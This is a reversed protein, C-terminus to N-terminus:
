LLSPVTVFFYVNVLIFTNETADSRSDRGCVRVRVRGGCLM